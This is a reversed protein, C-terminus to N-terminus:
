PPGDNATVLATLLVLENPPPWRGLPVPRDSFNSPGMLLRSSWYKSVVCNTSGGAKRKPLIPRVSGSTRPGPRMLKSMDAVLVPPNAFLDPERKAELPEVQPIRRPKINRSGAEARAREAPEASYSV